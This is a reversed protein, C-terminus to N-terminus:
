RLPVAYRARVIEVAEEFSMSSQEKSEMDKLMLCNNKIENEGIIIVFKRAEKHARRMRGKFSRETHDVECPIGKLWFKSAIHLAEHRCKADMPLIITRSIDAIKDDEGSLLLLREIGLAYGTAGIDPGGMEKILNNYRGGAAIADQAGLSPHIVEFVIGTYYDLGRVLDAKEHFPVAMENLTKKFLGYDDGCKRCHYDTIKPANLVVSACKERKCDLVRLVNIEARRKCSDCLGTKKQFLYKKLVEKYKTRDSVCGLSNLVITFDKCNLKHLLVKLNFVLEADIYPNSHAIIEAGIQHFQRLRGKQPREGRFMPGMYFLKCIEQTNLSPHEIYARIISATGEPRLSIMKGGRDSFTYMEKEVIDTDEGISRTFVEADELVPTSIENFGFVRFVERAKEELNRRRRAEDPLIDPMGRLSKYKM